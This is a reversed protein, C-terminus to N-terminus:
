ARHPRRIMGLALLMSVVGLCVLGIAWAPVVPEVSLGGTGTLVGAPRSRLGHVSQVMLNLTHDKASGMLYVVQAVGEQLQVGSPPILVKSGGSRVAITHQGPSAQIARQGGVKLAGTVATGDLRVVLGASAAVDRVVLRSRGAGIRSMRNDFVSITPHGAQTLHAVISTDSGARVKLSASLVPKSTAASGVSRIAVAYSGPALRMPQTATTPRFGDLLLKDNVYVDATFGPLAHVITVTGDRPAAASVAASGVILAVTGIVIGLWARRM